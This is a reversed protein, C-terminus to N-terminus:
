DTEETEEKPANAPADDESYRPPPYVNCECKEPTEGCYPCVSESMYGEEPLRGM